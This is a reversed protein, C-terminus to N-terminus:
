KYPGTRCIEEGLKRIRQGEQGRFPNYLKEDLPIMPAEIITWGNVTVGNRSPASPSTVTTDMMPMQVGLPVTPFPTTLTEPRGSVQREPWHLRARSAEVMAMFPAKFPPRDIKPLAERVIWPTVFKDGQFLWGFEGRIPM